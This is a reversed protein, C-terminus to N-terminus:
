AIRTALFAVDTRARVGRAGGAPVVVTTGAAVALEAGDVLMTGAGELFHYVAEAEPHEPIEQGARLGGLIVRVRDDEFVVTPRPGEEGYAIRTRWDAVVTPDSVTDGKTM